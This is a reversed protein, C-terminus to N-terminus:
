IGAAGRVNGAMDLLGRVIAGPSLNASGAAQTAVTQWNSALAELARAHAERFDIEVGTLTFSSTTPTGATVDILIGLERVEYTVDTDPTFPAAQNNLLLGIGRLSFDVGCDYFHTGRLILTYTTQDNRRCGFLIRKARTATMWTADVDAVAAQLEQVLTTVTTITGAAM